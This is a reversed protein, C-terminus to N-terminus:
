KANTANVNAVKLEGNKVFHFYMKGFYAILQAGNNIYKM